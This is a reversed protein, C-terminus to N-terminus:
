KVQNMIRMKANAYKARMYESESSFAIEHILRETDKAYPNEENLIHPANRGPIGCIQDHLNMIFEGVGNLMKVLSYYNPVQMEYLTKSTTAHAIKHRVADVMCLEHEYKIVLELYEKKKNYKTALNYVSAIAYQDSIIQNNKNLKVGLFALLEVYFSSKLAITVANFFNGYKDMVSAYYAATERDVGVSRHLLLEDLVALRQQLLILKLNLEGSLQMDEDAPM